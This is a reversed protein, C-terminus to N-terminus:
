APRYIEVNRSVLRPIIQEVAISQFHPSVRHVGFDTASRYRELILVREKGTAIPEYSLNGQEQRSAVALDTVLAWVDDFDEPSLTYEAVVLLGTHHPDTM